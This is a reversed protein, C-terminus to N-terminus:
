LSGDPSEPQPIAWGHEHSTRYLRLDAQLRSEPSVNYGFGKILRSLLGHAGMVGGFIGLMLKGRVWFVAPQIGWDVHAGGGGLVPASADRM